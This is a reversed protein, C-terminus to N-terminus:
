RPPFPNWVEVSKWVPTLAQGAMGIIPVLDPDDARDGLLEVVATAAFPRDLGTVFVNDDLVHAPDSPGLVGVPVTSARDLDEIGRGAAQLGYPRRLRAPIAELTTSAARRPAALLRALLERGARAQPAELRGM